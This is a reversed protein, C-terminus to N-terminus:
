PNIRVALDNSETYYPRAKGGDFETAPYTFISKKLPVDDLIRAIRM